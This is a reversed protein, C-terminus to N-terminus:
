EFTIEYFVVSNGDISDSIVLEGDKIEITSTKPTLKAAEKYKPMLENYFVDQLEESAKGTGTFAAIGPDDPSWKFMDDTINYTKRDELWEDFYNCDDNIYSTKVTATGSEVPMKIKFIMTKSKQTELTERYDYAMVRLTKTDEDYAALAQTNNEYSTTATQIVQIRNMGAFEATHKAVYYSMTPLGGSIFSWSSFYDVGNDMAEKYLKADFPAQYTYGVTRTNLDFKEYGPVSGILIRGEDVGFLLDNLGYKEATQKLKSMTEVFTLNKEYIPMGAQSHYWSAALYCIRTGKKGTAYNTGEAVHEIFDAEDWLGESCAMAHAGVFVKKGIADILAQVTYDYLKFYAIKTEEPDGSPHMFWGDNEYETMVGFRWSLVQTKGFEDVLASALAYIYDYYVDYDDPPYVNMNFDGDTANTSYKLPVSGLKLHPKAGLEVIGRCADILKTFDYDDLVSTDLPDIFLDRDETGGSCQMLQVYDTFEYVNYEENKSPVGVNWLNINNFLSTLEGGMKQTNIEFIDVMGFQAEVDAGTLESISLEDAKCGSLFVSM